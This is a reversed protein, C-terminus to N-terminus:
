WKGAHAGGDIHLVEGTIFPANTLYLVADAIESVDGIRPMPQLQKLVERDTNQSLPTDITGPAIANVRIGSRAYELALAKTAANLGGKTLILAASPLGAIPQDALTATINVVHGSKQPLMQRIAQQTLYLFGFLNTAILKEFDAVTYDTFPKGIFIGANNVLLDIRGFRQMATEVLRRATAELAIDGEVIALQESTSLTGATSIHRSTAVVAYGKQLLAHTLGLGIGSSAGTVIATKQTTM